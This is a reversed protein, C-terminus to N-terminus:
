EYSTILINKTHGILSYWVGQRGYFKNGSTVIIEFLVLCLVYIYFYQYGDKVERNQRWRMDNEPSTM